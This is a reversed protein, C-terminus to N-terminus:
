PDCRQVLENSLYRQSPAHRKDIYMLEQRRTLATARRKHTDAIIM